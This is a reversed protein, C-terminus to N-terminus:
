EEAELGGTRLIKLMLSNLVSGFTGHHSWMRMTDEVLNACRRTETAVCAEILGKLRVALYEPIVGESRLRGVVDEPTM